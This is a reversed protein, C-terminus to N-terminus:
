RKDPKSSENKLDAHTKKKQCTCAFTDSYHVKKETLIKQVDKPKKCHDIKSFFFFFLFSSFYTKTEETETGRKYPSM